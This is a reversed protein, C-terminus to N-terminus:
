VRTTRICVDKFHGLEKLWLERDFPKTDNATLKKAKIPRTQTSKKNDIPM